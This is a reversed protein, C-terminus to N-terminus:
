RHFIVKYFAVIGVFLCIIGAIWKIPDALPYHTNYILLLDVTCVLLVIGYIIQSIRSYGWTSKDALSVGIWASFWGLLAGALVDIPWHAGVVIRSFGVLLAFIISWMFIAKQRFTFAIVGMLTFITTSHGSPFAHKTLRRGIIHFTDAPLVGAPRPVDLIRKLSHLVIMYFISAILVSWIIDPRKKLFPFLLVAAFLGDGFLTIFGWFRDGTITNAKNFLLFLKTNIGMFQIIIMLMMFILLPSWVWPDKFSPASKKIMDFNFIINNIQCHKRSFQCRYHNM